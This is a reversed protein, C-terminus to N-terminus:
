LRDEGQAQGEGHPVNANAIQRNVSRFIAEDVVSPESRQLLLILLVVESVNSLMVDAVVRSRKVSKWSDVSLEPSGVKGSNGLKTAEITFLFRSRSSYRALELSM